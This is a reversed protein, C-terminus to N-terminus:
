FLLPSVSDSTLLLGFQLGLTKQRLRMQSAASPPWLFCLLASHLRQGSPFYVSGQFLIEGPSRLRWPFWALLVFFFPGSKSFYGKREHESGCGFRVELNSYPNSFWGSAGMSDLDLNSQIDEKYLWPIATNLSHFSHSHISWQKEGDSKKEPFGEARANCLVKCSLPTKICKVGSSIGAGTSHPQFPTYPSGWKTAFSIHSWLHQSGQPGGAFQPLPQVPM